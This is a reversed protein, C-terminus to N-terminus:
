GLHTSMWDSGMSALAMAIAMIIPAFRARGFRLPGESDVYRNIGMALLTLTAAVLGVILARSLLTGVEHRRLYASLIPCAIISPMLGYPFRSQRQKDSNM